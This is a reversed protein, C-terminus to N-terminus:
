ATPPGVVNHRWFVEPYVLAGTIWPEYSPLTLCQFAVDPILPSPKQFGLAGAAVFDFRTYYGPDGELFVAPVGWQEMTKLGARVLASGIGLRQHAPLVALPSLLYVTACREEGVADAEAEAHVTTPTFMVHGVIQGSKEAVLSLRRGFPLSTRLDHVLAAVTIGHDGFAIRHVHEVADYEDPREERTIASM